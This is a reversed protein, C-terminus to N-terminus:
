LGEAVSTTDSYASGCDPLETISWVSWLLALCSILTLTWGVICVTLWRRLNRNEVRKLEYGSEMSAIWNEANAQEEISEYRM